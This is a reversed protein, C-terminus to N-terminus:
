ESYMANIFVNNCQKIHDNCYLYIGEKKHLFIRDYSEEFNSINLININM